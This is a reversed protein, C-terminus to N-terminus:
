PDLSKHFHSFQESFATLAATLKKLFHRLTIFAAAFLLLCLLLTGGLLSLFLQNLASNQTDQIYLTFPTSAIEASFIGTEEKVLQEFGSFQTEMEAKSDMWLTAASDPVIDFLFDSMSFLHNDESSSFSPLLDTALLSVAATYTVNSSTNQSLLCLFANQTSDTYKLYYWQVSESPNELLGPYHQLLYDYLVFDSYTLCNSDESPILLFNKIDPNSNTIRTVKSRFNSDVDKPDWSDTNSFLTYLNYEATKFKREVNSLQQNSFAYFKNNYDDRLLLSYLFVIVLSYSILIITITSLLLRTYKRSLKFFM